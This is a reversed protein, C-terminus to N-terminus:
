PRVTAGSDCFADRVPREREPDTVVLERDDVPFRVDPDLAINM